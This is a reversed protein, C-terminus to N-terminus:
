GVTRLYLSVSSSFILGVLILLDAFDAPNPDVSTRILEVQSPGGLTREKRSLVAGGTFRVQDDRTIVPRWPLSLIWCPWM